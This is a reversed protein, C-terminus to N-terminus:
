AEFHTEETKSLCEPALVRAFFTSKFVQSKGGKCLGRELGSLGELFAKKRSEQEKKALREFAGWAQRSRFAEWEKKLKELAAKEAEEKKREQAKKRTEEQKAERVAQERKEAPSKRNAYNEEIAAVLWAARNKITKGAEITEHLLGVKEVIREAGHEAVLREAVRKAVGEDTLVEVLPSPDEKMDELLRTEAKRLSEDLPLAMQYSEKREALFGIKVVKRSQRILDYNVEIDTHENIGERAKKLVYKNFDKFSEYEGNQLGLLLRVNEVTEEKRFSKAAQKRSMIDVLYEYLILSYRSRIESQAMLQFRGFLSSNRIKEVIAPNIMYRFQGKTIKGAALFTCVGWEESRDQGLVNWEISKTVLGRTAGKLWDWNHTKAGGVLALVDKTSIVHWEQNSSSKRFGNEPQSHWLVINMLKREILTYQDAIHLTATPKHVVELLHGAEGQNYNVIEGNEM